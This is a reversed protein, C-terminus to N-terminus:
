RGGINKSSTESIHDGFDLTKVQDNEWVVAYQGLRRKTDLAKKVAKELCELIDKTEIARDSM